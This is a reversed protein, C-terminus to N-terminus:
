LWLTWREERERLRENETHYSSAQGKNATLATPISSTRVGTLFCATRPLTPSESGCTKLAERIRIWEGWLYPDPDKGKRMLTNLSSFYHKCFLIKVCCKILFLNKVSFIIHRRTTILFLFFMQMRLTVSSLLRIRIRGIRPYPDAGFHVSTGLVPESCYM